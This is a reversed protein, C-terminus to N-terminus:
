KIAYNKILEIQYDKLTSLDLESYDWRNLHYTRHCNPCLPLCKKAEASVYEWRKSKFATSSLGFLKDKPNVHHLELLKVDGKFNLCKVCSDGTIDFVKSRVNDKYRKRIITRNVM